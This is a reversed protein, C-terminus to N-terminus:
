GGSKWQKVTVTAPLTKDLTFVEASDNDYSFDFTGRVMSSGGLIVTAGDFNVTYNNGTSSQPGLSGNIWTVGKISLQQRLLLSTSSTDSTLSGNTLVLAPFGPKSWSKTADISSLGISGDLIVDGDIVILTGDLNFGAGITLNGVHRYVGAPNNSSKTLSRSAIRGATAPLSQAEYTRGDNWVYREYTRLSDTAIQARIAGDSMPVDADTFTGKQRPGPVNFFSNAWASGGIKMKWQPTLALNGNVAISAFNGKGQSSFAVGTGFIAAQKYILSTTASVLAQSHGRAIVQGQANKFQAVSDIRFHQWDQERTITVTCLGKTRLSMPGYTRSVLDGANDAIFEDSAADRRLKLIGWNVGSEALYDAQAVRPLTDSMQAQLVSTSLMAMALFAATGLLAIVIMLAVGRHQQRNPFM